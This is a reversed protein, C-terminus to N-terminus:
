PRRLRYSVAQDPLPTVHFVMVSGNNIFGGTAPQWSLPNNIDTSEQLVFGSAPLQWSILVEDNTTAVSLTPPPTKFTRDTSYGIQNVNQGVGRFHYLTAPELNTITATYCTPFDLSSVWTPNGLIQGTSFGQYGASDTVSNGGGENLRFYTVLGPENGVAACGYVSAVQGPSLVIDWIQAEAIAGAFFSNASAGPWNPMTDWGIRWYGDYNFAAGVNTKSAVQIGDVYLRMGDAQSFTGAAQHWQGDNCAPGGSIMNFTTDFVGFRILGDTGMYLHRDLVPSANTQESGFGILRGGNQSTTKFWLGVSLVQPNIVLQTSAIFDGSGNLVPTVRNTIPLPPAFYSYNTTPGYEFYFDAWDAVQNLASKGLLTASNVTVKQAPLTTPQTVTQFLAESPTWNIPGAVSATNTTGTQFTTGTGEDFNLSLVVRTDFFDGTLAKTMIVPIVSPGIATSWVRVQDLQGDFKRDSGNNFGLVFDQGLTLNRNLYLSVGAPLGNIYYSVLNSVTGGLGLTPGVTVAVHVWQNLPVPVTSFTGDFSGCRALELYQPATTNTTTTVSRVLFEVSGNCNTSSLIAVRPNFTKGGSRLNIWASITYNSLLAPTIRATVFNTAPGGLRLAVGPGGTEPWGALSYTWAGRGHTGLALIQDSPDYRLSYAIARPLSSGLRTWWLPSVNLRMVYVGDDTGVALANGSALPLFEITRIRPGGQLNQTLASWTAGANATFYVGSSTGVYAEMWNLPNAVIGIPVGNTFATPQLTGAATSRLYVLGNNGCVWVVNPNAIGNLMGGYVMRSFWPAVVSNAGIRRLTEGQDTSEFVGHYLSFLLRRGDVANMEMAYYWYSYNTERLPTLSPYNSFILQGASNYIKRIFELKSGTSPSIADRGQFRYSLGPTSRADVAVPGGDCCLSLQWSQSGPSKQEATANDQSGGLLVKGLPDYGISWFETLQLNGILSRWGGTGGLDVVNTGTTAASRPLLYIGGDDCEILNGSADMTMSHSDVHVTKANTIGRGTLSTFPGNGIKSRDIRWINNDGTGGIYALTSNSSDATFSFHNYGALYYAVGGISIWNVGGNTSFYTYTWGSPSKEIVAAYVAEVGNLNHVALGVRSANTGIGTTNNLLGASVNTWTAGMNDSRYVGNAPSGIYFRNINGPVEAISDFAAVPLGNTGAINTFTLGGDTSRYLSTGFGGGALLINGRAAASILRQNLLIAPSIRQWTVGGDTTRLLGLLPTSQNGSSYNGFTAVLTQYTLDTPDFVVSSISLSPQHDTLPVWSPVTATANVTKWIGGNVGAAYVINPDTPHPAAAFVSGNIPYDPAQGWAASPRDQSTDHIPAPGQAVWDHGPTPSGAPPLPAPIPSWVASGVFAAESAGNEYAMNPSLVGEGEDFRYYALLNTEAGNLVHDTVPAAAGRWIQVEDLYGDFKRGQGNYGLAINPGLGVNNSAHLWSAGAANGNIYFSVWNSGPANTVSVSVQVWTNLPVAATSVVGEYNSCRALQLYQPDSATSGRILFETTANCTTSSLIAIRPNSFAGGSRLYVRASITYNTLMQNLAVAGYGNIGNLSLASGGAVQIQCNASLGSLLVFLAIWARILTPHKSPERINKM